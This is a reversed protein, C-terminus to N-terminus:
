RERAEFRMAFTMACREYVDVRIRWKDDEALAVNMTAALETLARELVPPPAADASANVTLTVTGFWTTVRRGDLRATVTAGVGPVCRWFADAIATSVAECVSLWKADAPEAATCVREFFSPAEPLPDFATYARGEPASTHACTGVIENCMVCRERPAHREADPVMYPERGDLAVRQYGYELVQVGGHDEAFWQAEEWSSTTFYQCDLDDGSSGPEFHPVVYLSSMTTGM